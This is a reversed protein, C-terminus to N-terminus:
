DLGGLHGAAVHVVEIQQEIAADDGAETPPAFLTWDFDGDEGMDSIELTNADSSTWVEAGILGGMVGSVGIKGGGAGDNCKRDLALWMNMETRATEWCGRVNCPSFIKTGSGVGGYWGRRLHERTEELSRGPKYLTGARQKGVGWVLEIPQYRYLRSPPSSLLVDNKRRM